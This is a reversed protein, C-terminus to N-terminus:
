PALKPERISAHSFIGRKCRVPGSRPPGAVPSIILSAAECGGELSPSRNRGQQVAGSTRDAVPRGGGLPTPNSEPSLTVGLHPSYEGYLGPPRACLHSCEM